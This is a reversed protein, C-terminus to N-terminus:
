EEGRTLRMIQETTVGTRAAGRARELWSEASRPAVRRRRLDALWAILEALQPEPLREIATEIEQVTSM